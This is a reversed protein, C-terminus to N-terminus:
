SAPRCVGVADELPMGGSVPGRAADLAKRYGPDGVAGAHFRWLRLVRRLQKWGVPDRAKEVAERYQDLFFGREDTPLQDLIWQPDLPDEREAPQARVTDDYRAPHCPRRCALRTDPARSRSAPGVRPVAEAVGLVLETVDACPAGEHDFPISGHGRPVKRGDPLM